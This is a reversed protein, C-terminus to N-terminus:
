TCYDTQGPLFRMKPLSQSAPSQQRLQFLDGFKFSDAEYQHVAPPQDASKVNKSQTSGYLREEILGFICNHAFRLL